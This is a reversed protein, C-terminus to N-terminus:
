FHEFHSFHNGLTLTCSHSTIKKAHCTQFMLINTVDTTPSRKAKHYNSQYVFVWFAQFLTYDGFAKGTGSFFDFTNNYIM